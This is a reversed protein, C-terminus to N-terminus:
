VWRGLPRLGASAMSLAELADQLQRQALRSWSAPCISQTSPKTPKHCVRARFSVRTVSSSSPSKKHLSDLLCSAAVPQLVVRLGLTPTLDDPSLHVTPCQLWLCQKQARNCESVFTKSTGANCSPVGLVSLGLLIVAVSAINARM